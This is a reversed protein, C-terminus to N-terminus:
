APPKWASARGPASAGIISGAPRGNGTAGADQRPPERGGAANRRHIGGAHGRTRSFLLVCQQGARAPGPGWEIGRGDDRMRGAGRMVSELDPMEFAIHNLTPGGTFGLVMSHHDANCSLFRLRAHHRHAHLRARRSLLGADRRQRRCQHQRPQAQAAPRTPRRQRRSGQRRLRHRHQPRGPGQLRLRLRRAAPATQPRRISRKSGMRSWRPMCRMSPQATPPTSCWASRRRSRAPSHHPHPPLRRHRASLARRRNRRCADSEVGRYFVAAGQRCRCLRSRRQALRPSKGQSM